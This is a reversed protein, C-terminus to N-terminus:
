CLQQSSNSVLEGFAPSDGQQQRQALPGALGRGSSSPDMGNIEIGGGAKSPVPRLWSRAKEKGTPISEVTEKLCNKLCLNM